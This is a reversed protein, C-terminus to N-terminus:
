KQWKPDRIRKTLEAFQTKPLAKTYVDADMDETRCFEPKIQNTTVCDRVYHHDNRIHRLASSPTPKNIAAIAAQNDMLMATPSSQPLGIEELLLRITVGLQSASGAARYEAEQTSRSVTSQLSSLGHIFGVGKFEALFGSLSRGPKDSDDPEGMFDSDTFLRLILPGECRRLTVCSKIMGKTYRMVRKVATVHTGDYANCHASLQNVAYMIEPFACRALWLLSGVAERYPFEAEEPATVDVKHLKTGPAAPTSTPKCDTMNFRALMNEVYTEHSIRMTGEALDHVIKMGLYHEGSLQKCPLWDECDRIFQEMDDERDFGLRLDDVYLIVMSLAAGDHSWRVYFCPDGSCANFGLSKLFKDTEAWWNFSSQKLGQLGNNLRLAFGAPLSMGKPPRMYIVETLGLQSFAADFDVLKSRMGRHTVIGLFVFVSLLSVTPSAIKAPDYDVNAIQSFGQPCIRSKAYTPNNNEDHKFRHAWTVGIAKRSDPLLEAVIKKHDILDHMEKLMSAVLRPDKVAEGYPIKAARAHYRKHPRFTPDLFDRPVPNRTSRRVDEVGGDMLEGPPPAALEEDGDLLEGPPPAAQLIAAGPVIHGAAPVPHVAAVPVPAAAPGAPPGIVAQPMVPPIAAVAHPMLPPIVDGVYADSEEMDFTEAAFIPTITDHPRDQFTARDSEIITGQANILFRWAKRHESFGILLAPRGAMSFKDYQPDKSDIHVIARTGIPHLRAISPPQGTLMHMPSRQGPNTAHPLRNDLFAAALLCEAWSHKPFNNSIRLTRALTMLTRIKREARGNQQPTHAVTLESRAGITTLWDTLDRGIFEGAGDSRVIQLVFGHSRIYKAEFRILATVLDRRGHVPLVFAAGTYDDVVIGVSYQNQWSPYKFDKSDVYIKEFPRTTRHPLSMPLHPPKHSKALDCATCRFEFNSPQFETGEAFGILLGKNVAAMLRQNGCHFVRHAFLAQVDAPSTIKRESVYPALSTSTAIAPSDDHTRAQMAAGHPRRNIPIRVIFGRNARECTGVRENTLVDYLYSDAPHLCAAIGHRLLTDVSILNNAFGPVVHVPLGNITGCGISMVAHGDAVQVEKIKCPDFDEVLDKTTVFIHTAASDLSGVLLTDSLPVTPTGPQVTMRVASAVSASFFEDDSCNNNTASQANIATAARARFKAQRKEALAKLHEVKIEPHKVFCVNESHNRKGCHSCIEPSSGATTLTITPSIPNGTNSTAAYAQLPSTKQTRIMEDKALVDTVAEEWTLNPLSGLREVTLDFAKPLGKLLTSTVLLDGITQVPVPVPAPIGALLAAAAAAANAAITADIAAQVSTLERRRERLEHVFAITTTKQSAHTANYVTQLAAARTGTIYQRQIATWIAVNDGPTIGAIYGKCNAAQSFIFYEYMKRNRAMWNNIAADRVDVAAQNAGAVGVVLAVPCLEVGTIINSSGTVYAYGVTQERYDAWNEGSNKAFRRFSSPENNDEM